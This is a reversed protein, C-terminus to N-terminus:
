LKVRFRPSRPAALQRRRVSITWSQGVGVQEFAPHRCQVPSCTAQPNKANVLIPDALVARRRTNPPRVRRSCLSARGDVPGGSINCARTSVFRAPNGASQSLRVPRRDGMM